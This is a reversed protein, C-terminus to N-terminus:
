TLSGASRSRARRRSAQGEIGSRRGVLVDRLSAEPHSWTKSTKRQTDFSWNVSLTAVGFQTARTLFDAPSSKFWRRGANGAPRSSARGDLSGATTLTRGAPYAGARSSSGAVREVSEVGRTSRQNQHWERKDAAHNMSIGHAGQRDRESRRAPGNKTRRLSPTRLERLVETPAPLRANPDFPVGQLGKPSTPRM